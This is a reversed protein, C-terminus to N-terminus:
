GEIARVRARLVDIHVAGISVTRDIRAPHLLPSPIWPLMRWAEDACAVPPRSRFSTAVPDGVKMFNPRAGAVMVLEVQKARARDSQSTEPRCCLPVSHRLAVM